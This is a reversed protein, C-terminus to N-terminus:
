RPLGLFSVFVACMCVSVCWMCGQVVCINLAPGKNLRHPGFFSFFVDKKRQEGSAERGHDVMTQLSAAAVHM